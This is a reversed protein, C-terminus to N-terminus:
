SSSALVPATGWSPVQEDEDPTNTLQTVDTGDVRMVYIDGTVYHDGGIERSFAILTGDPSWAPATDFYPAGDTLQVIGSGDANMVYISAGHQANM